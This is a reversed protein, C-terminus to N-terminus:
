RSLREWARVKGDRFKVVSETYPIYDPGFDFNYFPGWGFNRYPGCGYGLPGMGMGMGMGVHNRYVPRLGTYRWIEYSKGEESAQSISSAPGWAIWVADRNMGETVGGALVTQKQSEPIAQFAAPRRQARTTPTSACNSLGVVSILAVALQIFKM